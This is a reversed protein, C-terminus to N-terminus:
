GAGGDPDLLSSAFVIPDVGALYADAQREASIKGTLLSLRRRQPVGRNSLELVVSILWDFFQM